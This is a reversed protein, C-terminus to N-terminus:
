IMAFRIMTNNALLVISATGVDRCQYTFSSASIDTSMINCQTSQQCISAMTWAFSFNGVSAYLFGTAVVLDDNGARGLYVLGLVQIVLATVRIM